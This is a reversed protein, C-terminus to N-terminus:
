KGKVVERKGGEAGEICKLADEEANGGKGGGDGAGKRRRAGKVTQPGHPTLPPLPLL